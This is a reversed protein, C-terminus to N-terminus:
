YMTKDYFRWSFSLYVNGDYPTASDAAPSGHFLMRENIEFYDHGQSSIDIVMHGRPHRGDMPGEIYSAYNFPLALTSVEIGYFDDPLDTLIQIVIDVVVIVIAAVILTLPSTVAAIIASGVEGAVEIGEEILDDKYEELIDSVMDGWPGEMEKKATNWFRSTWQAILGGDDEEMIIFTAHYIRPWESQAIDSIDFYAEKGFKHSDGKEPELEAFYRGFEVRKEDRKSNTPLLEQVFGAVHFEENGLEISDENMIISDLYFGIKRYRDDMQFTLGYEGPRCYTIIVPASWPGIGQPAVPLSVGLEKPKPKPVVKPKTQVYAGTRRKPSLKPKLQPLIRVYYYTPEEAPEPPLFKHLDINFWGKVQDEEVPRAVSIGSALVIGPQGPSARLLQWFGQGAGKEITNWRFRLIVPGNLTIQRKGHPDMETFFGGELWTTPAVVSPKTTLREMLKGTGSRLVKMRSNVARQLMAKMEADLSPVASLYLAEAGQAAHAGFYRQREAVSKSLLAQARNQVAARNATDLHLFATRVRGALSQAPYSKNPNAAVVTIAHSLRNAFAEIFEVEERTFQHSKAIRELLPRQSFAPKTQVVQSATEPTHTKGAYETVSVANLASFSIIVLGAVNRRFGNRM